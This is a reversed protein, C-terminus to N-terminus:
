RCGPAAWAAPTEGRFRTDGDFSQALGDHDAGLGAVTSGATEVWLGYVVRRPLGTAAMLRQWPTAGACEPPAANQWAKAPRWCPTRPIPAATRNRSLRASSSPSNAGRSPLTSGVGGVGYRALGRRAVQDTGPVRGANPRGPRRCCREAHGAAPHPAEFLALTQGLRAAETLTAVRDARRRPLFGLFVFRDAPFGAVALAATVASVGPISVVQYGADVVAAVLGAGPDSVAPSGADTVLAVDSDDLADLLRPLQRRWNHEHCSLLRPRAELHALLRRTVRTDEAAVLPVSALIRAARM